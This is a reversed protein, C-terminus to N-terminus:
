HELVNKVKIYCLKCRSTKRDLKHTEQHKLQLTETLFTLDCGSCKYKFETNNRNSSLLEEDQESHITRMHRKLNTSNSFMSYGHSKIETTQLYFCNSIKFEFSFM